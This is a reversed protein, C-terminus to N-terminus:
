PPFPRLAKFFFLLILEYIVKVSLMERIPMDGHDILSENKLYFPQCPQLADLIPMINPSNSNIRIFRIMEGYMTSLEENKLIEDVVVNEGTLCKAAGPRFNRTFPIESM